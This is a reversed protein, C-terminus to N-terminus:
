RALRRWARSHIRPARATSTFMAMMRVNTCNRRSMSVFRSRARLISASSLFYSSFNATTKSAILFGIVKDDVVTEWIQLEWVGIIKEALM